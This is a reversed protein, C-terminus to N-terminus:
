IQILSHTTLSFTASLRVAELKRGRLLLFRLSEPVTLALGLTAVSSCFCLLIYILRWGSQGFLSWNYGAGNPTLMFVGLFPVVAYGVTWSSMLM